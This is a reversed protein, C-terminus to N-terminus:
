AHVKDVRESYKKSIMQLIDNGFSIQLKMEAYMYSCSIM